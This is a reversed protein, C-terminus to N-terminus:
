LKSNRMGPRVRETLLSSIAEKNKQSKMLGYTTGGNIVKKSLKIGLDISTQLVQDKDVAFDVLGAQIGEEATFRHGDVLCKHVYRPSSLRSRMFQFTGHDLPFDIDIENMCIYGRFKNMVVYDHMSAIMCGGAFAHGNVAAITPLKFELVRAIMASFVLGFDKKGLSQEINLGNSFFKGSSTTVVFGRLQDKEGSKYRRAQAEFETDFVLLIKDLAQNFAQCFSITLRNEPLDVLHIIFVYTNIEEKLDVQLRVLAKENNPYNYVSM